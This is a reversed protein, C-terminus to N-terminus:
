EAPNILANLVMDEWKGAIKLYARAYGERGFGLARLLRESKVNAPMHNAMIRHLGLEGFAYAIGAAAVERMLGRGECARAISYGLHCAQLPGRVINTFNCEAVMQESDRGIAIFNVAHGDLFARHASAARAHCAQATYFPSDREPEWPALHQRNEQQYALLLDANGPHLVTLITHPTVIAPLPQM